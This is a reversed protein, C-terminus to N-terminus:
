AYLAPHLELLEVTVDCFTDVCSGEDGAVVRAAATTDVLRGATV